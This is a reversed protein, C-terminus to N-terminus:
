YSPNGIGEIGKRQDRLLSSTRDRAIAEAYTTLPGLHRGFTDRASLTGREHFPPLYGSSRRAKAAGAGAEPRPKTATLITPLRPSLAQTIQSHHHSEPVKRPGLPAPQRAFPDSSLIERYPNYSDGRYLLASAASGQAAKRPSGSDVRRIDAPARYTTTERSVARRM